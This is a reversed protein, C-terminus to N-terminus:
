KWTLANSAIRGRLRHSAISLRTTAFVSRSSPM